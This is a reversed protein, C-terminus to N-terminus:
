FLHLCSFLRAQTPSLVRNQNKRLRSPHRVAMKKIKTPASHSLASFGKKSRSPKDIYLLSASFLIKENKSFLDKENKQFYVKKM